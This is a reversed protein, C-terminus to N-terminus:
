PGKILRIGSHVEPNSLRIFESVAGQLRHLDPRESAQLQAAPCLLLSIGYRVLDRDLRTRAERKDRHM